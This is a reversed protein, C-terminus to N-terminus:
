QQFKTVKFEKFRLNKQEENVFDLFSMVQDQTMGSKSVFDLGFGRTKLKATAIGYRLLDRFVASHEDLGFPKYIVRGLLNNKRLDVVARWTQFAESLTETPFGVQFTAKVSIGVEKFAEVPAVFAAVTVVEAPAM